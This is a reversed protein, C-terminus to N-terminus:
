QAERLLWHVGTSWGLFRRSDAASVADEIPLGDIARLLGTM